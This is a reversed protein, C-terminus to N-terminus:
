DTTLFIKLITEVTAYWEDQDPLLKNYVVLIEFLVTLAALVLSCTKNKIRSSQFQRKGTEVHEPKCPKWFMPVLLLTRDVNLLNRVFNRVLVLSLLIPSLLLIGCICVMSALLGYEWRICTIILSLVIMLRMVLDPISILILKLKHRLKPDKHLKSLWHASIGFCIAVFSTVISAIDLKRQWIFM